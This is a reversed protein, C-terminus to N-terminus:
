STPCPGENCMARREVANTASVAYRIQPPTTLVQNFFGGVVEGVVKGLDMELGEGQMYGLLIEALDKANPRRNSYTTHTHTHTHASVRM